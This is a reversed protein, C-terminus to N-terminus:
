HFHGVLRKLNAINIFFSFVNLKKRKENQAVKSKGTHIGQHGVDYVLVNM